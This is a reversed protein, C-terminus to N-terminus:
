AIRGDRITIIRDTLRAAEADHTVIIITTDYADRVQAFLQM